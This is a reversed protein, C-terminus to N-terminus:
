SHAAAALLDAGPSGLLRYREPFLGLPELLQGLREQVTSWPMWLRPGPGAPLAVRDAEPLWGEGGEPSWVTCSAVTGCPDQELQFPLVRVDRGAQGHLRDLLTKQQAYEELLRRRRAQALLAAAPHDQGPEWPSWHFDRLRLPCGNLARPDERVFELGAELILGLARPDRSGAVLLTDRNPLVVVPDGRLPLGKLLGPLLVRSGDLNDQWTSRFLGPRVERFGELGGRLLLNARARQLLIAFDANWARLQAAGLDLEGEPFDLVLSTAFIGALPQFQPCPHGHRLALAEYHFRPRVKPLLRPLAAELTLPRRPELAPFLRRLGELM